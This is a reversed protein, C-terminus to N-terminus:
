IDGLANIGKLMNFSFQEKFAQSVQESISRSQEATTGAPVNVTINETINQNINNTSPYGQRGSAAVGNVNSMPNIVPSALNRLSIKAPNFDIAPANLEKLSDEYAILEGSKGFVFRKETKKDDDDRFITSNKIKQFVGLIKEFYRSFWEGLATFKDTFYNVVSDIIDKFTGEFGFWSKVIDGIVSENGQYWQYLDEVLLLIAASAAAILATWWTLPNRLLAVGLKIVEKTSKAAAPIFMIGLTGAVIKIANEAGGLLNILKQIPALLIEIVKLVLGLAEATAKIVGTVNQTIIEKNALFWKNVKSILKDFLPMINLAISTKIGNFIIKFRNWTQLFAKSREVDEKTLLHGVTGISEIQAKLESTSVSMARVLDMNTTGLLKQALEAQKSADTIKLIERAIESYLEVTNKSQNNQKATSSSLKTLAKSLDGVDEGAQQAILELGQLTKTTIGLRTALEDTEKIAQATKTVIVGLGTASAVLGAIEYRASKISKGFDQMKLKIQNIRDDFADIKAQDVKFGLQVVLERVKM